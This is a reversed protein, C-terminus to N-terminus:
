PSSTPGRAHYGGSHIFSSIKRGGAGFHTEVAAAASETGVGSAAIVDQGGLGVIVDKGPTGRLRDNGSTGVITATEGACSAAGAVAPTALAVLLLLVAAFLVRV